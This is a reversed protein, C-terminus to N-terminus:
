LNHMISCFDIKNKKTTKKKQKKKENVNTVHKQKLRDYLTGNTDSDNRVTM